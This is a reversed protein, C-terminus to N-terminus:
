QTGRMCLSAALDLAQQRDGAFVIRQLQGHYQQPASNLTDLDALLASVAAELETEDEIIQALWFGRENVILGNELVEVVYRDPYTGGRTHTRWVQVGPRELAEVRQRRAVRASRTKATTTPTTSTTPTTATTTKVTTTTPTMAPTKATTTM